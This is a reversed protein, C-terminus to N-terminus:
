RPAVTEIFFDFLSQRVQMINRVIDTDSEHDATDSVIKFLYCKINFMRCTQVVAAGEMDVLAAHPALADREDASVIPRDQTSLAADNFGELVGPKIYRRKRGIIKPRDSELVHTIHFIEGLRAGDGTAGAAGLNYVKVPAYKLILYATAVAANTKGIGSIILIVNGNGYVAFPASEVQDLRLGVIFPDAEIRTAM